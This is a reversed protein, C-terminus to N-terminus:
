EDHCSCTKGEGSCSCGEHSHGKHSKPLGLDMGGAGGQLSIYLEEAAANAKEFEHSIQKLQGRMKAEDASLASKKEAIYAKTEEATKEVHAGAGVAVIMSAKDTIKARVYVGAGLPIMADDSSCKPLQEVAEATEALEAAGAEAMAIQRSLEQMMGQYARIQVLLAQLKRQDDEGAM